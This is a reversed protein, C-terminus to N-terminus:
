THNQTRLKKIDGGSPTQFIRLNFDPIISLTYNILKTQVHEYPVWDNKAYFCYFQLPLGEPTPQLQRVMITSKKDVFSSNQLYDEMYSIFVDLNVLHDTNQVDKLYGAEIFAKIDEPSCFHITSMDVFISRSIRRVGSDQMGRWNQFSSSILTYPPVTVITNDFNQIKVTTLTVDTVVGDASTGPVTIWDGPKLMDNVSLQVGAILGVLSDKFILSLITAAAGLGAILGIPDKGLIVGVIWIVGLFNIVLVLMQSVGRMPLNQKKKKTAHLNFLTKIFVCVLRILMIIFYVMSARLLYDLLVPMDSFAAPLMIYIILSPVANSASKLVAENLLYDDIKTKTKSVVKRIIPIIVKHCIFGALFAIALIIAIWILRDAISTWDGSLELLSCFSFIGEKAIVETEM